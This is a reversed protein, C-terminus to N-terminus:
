AAGRWHGPPSRSQQEAGGTKWIWAFATWALSLAKEIKHRDNGPMYLLARRPHMRGIIACDRDGCLEGRSQSINLPFIRASLGAQEFAKKMALGIAPNAAAQFFRDPQARRGLAGGCQGLRAPPMCPRWRVPSSRCATPSTCPTGGDGEGLLTLDGTELSKIVLV